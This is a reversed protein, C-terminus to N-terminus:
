FPQKFGNLQSSYGFIYEELFLAEFLWKLIVFFPGSAMTFSVLFLSKTGRFVPRWLSGGGTNRPVFDNNKTDNVM